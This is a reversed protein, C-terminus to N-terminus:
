WKHVLCYKASAVCADKSNHFSSFLSPSVKLKTEHTRTCENTPWLYCELPYCIYLYRFFAADAVTESKDKWTQEFDKKKRATAFLKDCQFYRLQVWSVVDKLIKQIWFWFKYIVMDYKVQNSDNCKVYIIIRM